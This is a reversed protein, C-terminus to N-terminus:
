GKTAAVLQNIVFTAIGYASLIIALGIVGSFIWSKAQGVQEENGGATMWLFGGYLIICVVVIGLLSMAVRIIKAITVRIDASALGLEPQITSPLLESSNLDVALAPAASLLSMGMVMVSVLNKMKNM